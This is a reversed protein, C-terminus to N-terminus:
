AINVYYNGDELYFTYGLANLADLIRERSPYAPSFSNQIQRTTVFDVGADKKRQIYAKVKTTVEDYIASAVALRADEEAKATVLDEDYIPELNEDVVPALIEEKYQAVVEYASCRCKQCACDSPVSVVDKPNVKVIVVNSAWGKAYDLSGVHIGSACHVSRDDCVDQREVEIKEGIGNYIQGSENVNGEVVRTEVNGNVSYFDSQVGKYALFCGDETLPLDKYALFDYLEHISSYSPNQRLNEWFKLFLDIPLNQEVFTLVKNALVQPLNEGKYSVTQGNIAFGAIEAEKESTPLVPGRILSELAEDQEDLPLDFIALAEKYKVDTQQVRFPANNYFFTIGINNPHIIYKM